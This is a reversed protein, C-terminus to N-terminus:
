GAILIAGFVILFIAFMAGLVGMLRCCRKNRNEVAEREAASCGLGLSTWDIPSASGM